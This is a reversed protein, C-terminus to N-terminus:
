IESCVNPNSSNTGTYGSPCSITYNIPSSGIYEPYYWYDSPITQKAQGTYSWRFDVTAGGTLEGWHAEIHYYQDKTM